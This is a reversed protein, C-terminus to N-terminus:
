SSPTVSVVDYGAEDIARRVDAEDAAGVVVVTRLPIDVTVQEVAPLRGVEREIALRCHDCSIGPVDYTHTATM